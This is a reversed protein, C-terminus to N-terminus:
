ISLAISHTSELARTYKQYIAPTTGFWNERLVDLTTMADTAEQSGKALADAIPQTGMALLGRGDEYLKKACVSLAEYEM